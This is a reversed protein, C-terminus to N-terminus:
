QSVRERGPFPPCVGGATIREIAALVLLYQYVADVYDSRARAGAVFTQFLLDKERNQEFNTRAYSMLERGESEKGTAVTLRETALELDYFATEAELIVLNRAKEYVSEAKQSFAMARCVRDYKTGVLQHPMEPPIAGPRYDKLTRVAQPVEQAHIDAGAALTPVSRRFHLRGQAYVELRFADVGAAALALEPRRDLAMAVISEKPLPVKQAM